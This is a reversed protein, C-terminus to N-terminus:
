SIRPSGAAPTRHGATRVAARRARLAETVLPIQWFLQVVGGIKAAPHKTDSRWWDVAMQIKAPMVAVFFAGALGASVRRTRGISLGTGIALAALGSAYTYTRAKGPLVPPIISDFFRPALFHLSGGLLLMAALRTAAADRAHAALPEGTAATDTVTM